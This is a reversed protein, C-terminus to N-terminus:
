FKPAYGRLYYCGGQYELFGKQVLEELLEPIIDFDKSEFLNSRLLMDQTQFFSGNVNRQGDEFYRLIRRKLDEKHQKAKKDRLWFISLVTDKLFEYFM